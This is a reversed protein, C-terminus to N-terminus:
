PPPNLLSRCRIATAVAASGEREVHHASALTRLSFLQVFEPILLNHNDYGAHLAFRL